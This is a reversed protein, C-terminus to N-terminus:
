CLSERLFSRYAQWQQSIAPIGVPRKEVRSMYSTYVDNPLPQEVPEMPRKEVLEGYPKTDSQSVSQVTRCVQSLFFDLFPVRMAQFLEREHPFFVDAPNSRIYNVVGDTFFLRYYNIKDPNNSRGRLRDPLELILALCEYAREDLFVDELDTEARRDAISDIQICSEEDDLSANRVTTKEGDVTKKRLGQEERRQDKWRFELRQKLFVSMPSRDPDFRKWDNMWFEGLVGLLEQKHVDDRDDMLNLIALFLQEELNKKAAENGDEPLEHWEVALRDVQEWTCSKSM